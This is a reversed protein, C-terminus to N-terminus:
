NRLSLNDRFTPVFNGYSATFYGMLACNEDVERRFDSILCVLRRNGATQLGEHVQKFVFLKERQLIKRLYTDRVETRKWNWVKWNNLM